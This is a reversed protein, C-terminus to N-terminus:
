KRVKVHIKKPEKGGVKKFHVKMMGNEFHAEPEVNEDAHCPLAVRYSFVSSAKRYYKKEKDEKTQEKQAQISLIGKDLTVEADEPHIGPLAAEVIIENDKEYVSLGSNANLDLHSHDFIPSLEFFSEPILDRHRSM